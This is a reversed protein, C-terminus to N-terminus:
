RASGLAGEIAEQFEEFPLSGTIKEGNVRFTPTARVGYRVEDDGARERIAQYLEENNLCSEFDKKSMGGQQAVRELEALPNQSRAWADQSRFLVELFGFYRDEGACHPLMAALLALQGIPFDRYVLRVKGTDVYTEKIQPLTDRHFSACHGCTLSSHEVITVPAEADGISKEPLIENLSAARGPSVLAVAAIFVFGLLSRRM